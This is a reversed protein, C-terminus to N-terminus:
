DICCFYYTVTDLVEVCLLYYTGIATSSCVTFVIVLGQCLNYMIGFNKHSRQPVYKISICNFLKVIFDIFSYTYVM